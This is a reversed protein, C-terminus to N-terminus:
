LPRYFGHAERAAREGALESVAIGGGRIQKDRTGGRAGEDFQLVTHGILGIDTQRDRFMIFVKTRIQLTVYSWKKWTTKLRAPLQSQHANSLVSTAM